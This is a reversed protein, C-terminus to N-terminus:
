TSYKENTTNKDFDHHSFNLYEDNNKSYLCNKNVYGCTKRPQSFNWHRQRNKM